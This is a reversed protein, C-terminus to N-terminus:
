PVSNGKGKPVVAVVGHGLSKYFPMRVRTERNEAIPSALELLRWAPVRVLLTLMNPSVEAQVLDDRAISTTSGRCTAHGEIYRCLQSHFSLPPYVTALILSLADCKAIGLM